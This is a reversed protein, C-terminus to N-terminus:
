RGPGAEGHDKRLAEVERRLTEIEARLRAVEDERALRESKAQEEAAIEQVKLKRQLYEATQQLYVATQTARAVREAQFRALAREREILRWVLSTVGLAAGALAVVVMLGLITLRRRPRAENTSM